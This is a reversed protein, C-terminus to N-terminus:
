KEETFESPFTPTFVSFFNQGRDKQSVIKLYAKMAIEIERRTTKCWDEDNKVIDGHKKWHMYYCGGGCIYKAWCDACGPRRLVGNQFFVKRIDRFDNKQINGLVFDQEGTFRPCPYITGNPSFSLVSTGAGCHFQRTIRFYLINIFKSVNIIGIYEKNNAASVMWRAAEEIGKSFKDCEDNNLGRSLGYASQSRAHIRKIGLNLVIHRYILSVFNSAYPTITPRAQVSINPFKSLKRINNKVAYYSGKGSIFRREKNHVFEPGDISVVLKVNFQNLFQLYEKTLLTANTTVFYVIRRNKAKKESYLISKKLVDWNMFPEGGFFGILCEKKNGCHSYFYDIAKKAVLWSMNSAPGNYSGGGGFCYGCKMNCKHSINLSIGGLINEGIENESEDFPESAPNRNLLGVKILENIVDRIEKEKYGLFLLRSIIDEKKESKQRSLIQSGLEDVVFVTSNFIDLGICNGEEYILHVKNKHLIM